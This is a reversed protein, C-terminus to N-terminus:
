YRSHYDAFDTTSDTASPVLARSYDSPVNVTARFVIEGAPGLELPDNPRTELDLSQIDFSPFPIPVQGNSLVYDSKSYEYGFDFPIDLEEPSSATVARVTGGSWSHHQVLEDWEAQPYQRFAFRFPLEMDGSATHQMHATFRGNSDVRGQITLYYWSPLPSSAPTKMLSPLVSGDPIVLAQKDRLNPFLLSFPAIEPTTDLWLTTGDQPVVTIVHDFQGPSPVDPDLKRSSSILAPWAKYGIAKLLTALLTHKDKCDGYANALVEAASHPQYRGIGFSLSVYHIQTSVFNYLARIRANPTLQGNTLEVAKARIEPTVTVQQEQLGGYWRAVETWTAFTTIQVDPQQDSSQQADLDKRTLNKTKWKYTRQSGSDTVIPQLRPTSLKVHKDIPLSIELEEDFAISNTIFSHDFWFQGPVEPMVIRYIVSYELVDGVSLSKVPVHKEHIDSYMPANRTVSAAMDQVDQPRTVVVTGGPKRVRVYIVDVKESAQKYPFVLVALRQVGAESQVRIVAASEKTGTGNSNYTIKTLFQEVLLAEKSYKFPQDSRSFTFKKPNFLQRPQDQSQAFVSCAVFAVLIPLRRMNAGM